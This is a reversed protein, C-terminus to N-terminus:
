SRVEVLAHSLPVRIIYRLVADRGERSCSLRDGRKGEAYFTNWVRVITWNVGFLIGTRDLWVTAPSVRGDRPPLRTEETLYADRRVVFTASTSQRGRWRM